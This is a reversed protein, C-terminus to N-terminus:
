KVVIDLAISVFEEIMKVDPNFRYVTIHSCNEIDIPTKIHIYNIAFSESNVMGCLINHIRESYDEGMNKAKLYLTMNVTPTEGDTTIGIQEDKGMGIEEKFTNWSCIDLLDWILINAPPFEYVLDLEEDLEELSRWGPTLSQPIDDLSTSLVHVQGEDMEGRDTVRGFNIVFPVNEMDKKLRVMFNKNELKKYMDTFTDRMTTDKIRMTYTMSAIPFLHKEVAIM